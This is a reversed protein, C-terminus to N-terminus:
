RIRTNTGTRLKEDFWFHFFVDVDYGSCMNELIYSACEPILRPQGHLCLAVKM